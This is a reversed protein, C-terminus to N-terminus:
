YPISIPSNTKKVVLTWLFSSSTNLGAIEMDLRRAGRQKQRFVNVNPGTSM